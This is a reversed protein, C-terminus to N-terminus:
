NFNVKVLQKKTGRKAYFLLRDNETDILPISVMLPLRAEYDDIVKEYSMHGAEDLKILFINRNRGLGQKFLIREDSLQQPNETATSIFFYTNTGKTYSCYSTYAPDGQTVESKNINRAWVLNGDASLKVSVIDNYHYRDIKVSSGTPDRQVSSTVFYEEANFLISNDKEVEVEKFVLNKVIEEEDRGFKDIMFQDSFPHYKKDKIQMTSPDIDFYVVGNYRNDKRNAYFGVCVLKNAYIIPNLAEPFIGPDNFEQVKGGSSNIQLLEYQFKRETAAFRKKKFYAKATLYVDSQNKSIVMNEFAYNKDEIESSFDYEMLKNLSTDFVSITHKNDKGKKHHSSIAFASKDKDFLVTTTFGSSFNRNYYNRDLPEEVPDSDISLITQKTFNFSSFSSKHIIYEYAKSGYNYELFLLYVQGNKVFADVYNVDKLKYNFEEILELNQNYHEIFYGRPKLIIGTFYSRILISGGQGDPAMTLLNSYKYKDNYKEGFTYSIPMEQAKLLSFFAIFFLTLFYRNRM